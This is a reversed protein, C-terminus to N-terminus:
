RLREQKAVIMKKTAISHGTQLRYLYVGAPLEGAEFSIRYQGAAKRDNVLTSIERGAIDYLKLTVPEARFLFFSFHTEAIVPNPYNQALEFAQPVNVEPEQVATALDGDFKVILANFVDTAWGTKSNAFSLGYYPTNSIMKWHAGGDRSYCSGSMTTAVLISHAAHPVYVITAPLAPVFDSVITWTQGGDTTQALTKSTGNLDGGGVFGNLSDKFAITTITFTGTTALPTNSATWTRGKDKTMFVRLPSALSTGFWAHNAGYVALATGGSSADGGSEGPQPAPINVVPVQEWSAGGNPTTLILFSGDVPDSFAIGHDKDWLAVANLIAGRKTNRYQLTWSKGGDTTKYIRADYADLRDGVFYATDQSIPAISFFAINTAAPVLGRTWTAGGDTTRLYVGSRAGAWVVTENVAKVCHVLSGTYQPVWRQARSATVSMCAILILFLTHPFFTGDFIRCEVMNKKM